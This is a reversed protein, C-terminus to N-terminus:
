EFDDSFISATWSVTASNNQTNFDVEGSPSASIAISIQSAPQEVTVQYRLSSGVGILGGAPNEPCRASPGFAACVLQGRALNGYNIIPRLADSLGANEIQFNWVLQGSNNLQAIPNEVTVQLDVLGRIPRSLVVFENGPQVDMAESLSFAGLTLLGRASPDLVGLFSVDRSEGPALSGIACRQNAMPSDLCGSTSVLRLSNDSSFVAQPSDATEPGLNRIRVPMSVVEGAIVSTSVGLHELAMDVYGYYAQTQQISAWAPYFISLTLAGVCVSAFLQRKLVM